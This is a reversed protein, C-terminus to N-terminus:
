TFPSSIFSLFRKGIQSTRSAIAGPGTMMVHLSQGEMLGKDSLDKVVLDYFDKRLQPFARELIASPSGAAFNTLNIKNNEAWTKPDDFFKLIKMHNPTFSDVFNLFMLQLDEDPPSPLAANLVANRLAEIKEEQHNRIAMTTAYLVTTIFTQNKVLAEFDFGEVKEELELLDKGIREMWEEQRKVIPPAVIAVFTEKAAGGFVPIMSLGARAILHVIDTASRKPLTTSESKKIETM